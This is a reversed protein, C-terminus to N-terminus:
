FAARSSDYLLSLTLRHHRLEELKKTFARQIRAPERTLCRYQLDCLFWNCVHPRTFRPLACGRSTLYRCPENELARTQAEPVATPLAHFFLLDARDFFVQRATCCPDACRPYCEREYREFFPDLWRILDLIGEALRRAQSWIDPRGRFWAELAANLHRWAHPALPRRVDSDSIPHDV